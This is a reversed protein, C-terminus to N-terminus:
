KRGDSKSLVFNNNNGNNNNQVQSVQRAGKKMTDQLKVATATSWLWLVSLAQDPQVVAAM